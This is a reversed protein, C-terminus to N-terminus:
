RLREALWDCTLLNYAGAFLGGVAFFTWAVGTPFHWEFLWGLLLLELITYSLVVVASIINSDKKSAWTSVFFTVWPLFLVIGLWAIIRGTGSILMQRTGADMQWWSIGAAVVALGVAGSVIKGTLTKLFDV